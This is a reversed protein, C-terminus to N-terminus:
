SISKRNLIIRLPTPIKSKLLEAIVASILAIMLWIAAGGFTGNEFILNYVSIVVVVDSFYHIIAFFDKIFGILEKMVESLMEAM